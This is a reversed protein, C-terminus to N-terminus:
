LILILMVRFLYLAYIYIYVAPIKPIKSSGKEGKQLKPFLPFHNHFFPLWMLATDCHTDFAIPTNVHMYQIEKVKTTVPRGQWMSSQGTNLHSPLGNCMVM